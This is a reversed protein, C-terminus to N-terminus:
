TVCQCWGKYGSAISYVSTYGMNQLSDASLASRYGGACYLYIKQEQNYIIEEIRSELVGRSIHLANPIYSVDYEHKERIDILVGDLSKNRIMRTFAIIDIEKIREKAENVLKFFLSGKEMYKIKM